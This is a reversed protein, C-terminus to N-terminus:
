CSIQDDDVSCNEIIYELAYEAMYDDMWNSCLDNLDDIQEDMRENGDDMWRQVVVDLDWDYRLDYTDMGSTSSIDVSPLDWDYRLDYTDMGAVEAHVRGIIDNAFYGTSFIVIFLLVRKM